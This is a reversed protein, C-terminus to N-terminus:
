LKIKVFNIRKPFGIVMEIIHNYKKCKLENNKANYKNYDFRMGFKNNM